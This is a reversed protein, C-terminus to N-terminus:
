IPRSTDGGYFSRQRQGSVASRKGVDKIRGQTGEHGNHYFVTMATLAHIGFDRHRLLRADPSVASREDSGLM